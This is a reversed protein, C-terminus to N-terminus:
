IFNQLSKQRLATDGNSSCNEFEIYFANAEEM